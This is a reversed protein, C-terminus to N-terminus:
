NQGKLAQIMMSCIAALTSYIPALLVLAAAVCVLGFVAWCFVAAASRGCNTIRQVSRRHRRRSSRNTILGVDKWRILSLYLALHPLLRKKRTDSPAMWGAWIVERCDHCIMPPSLVHVEWIDVNDLRSEVPLIRRGALHFGEPALGIGLAEVVVRRAAADSSEGPQIAGSPLSLGPRYSTRILLMKGEHWLAVAVTYTTPRRLLWWTRRMLYTVRYKPRAVYDLLHQM